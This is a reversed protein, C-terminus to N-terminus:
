RRSVTNAGSKRAIKIMENFAMQGARKADYDNAISQVNLNMSLNEINIGTEDGNNYISHGTSNNISDQLESILNSLTVKSGLIENRLFETQKANLISEPKKKTGDVWAPGTFDVLGGEAYKQLYSKYMWGGQKPAYAWKGSTKTVYVTTGKRLTKVKKASTSAKKRVNLNTTTRYRTGTNAPAPTAAATTSTDTTGEQTTTQKNKRAEEVFPNLYDEVAKEAQNEDSTKAYTENFIEQSRTLREETLLGDYKSNETLSKKYSEWNNTKLESTVPNNEDDRYSTWQQVISVLKNLDEQIQAQSKSLYDPTNSQIFDVISEPTGNMIDTVEAWWLGNEKQYELAENMLEIQADLREIQNESAEKVADIQEQQKNFYENQQKSDIEKQLSRIQSASGGSRQLIALQRQLKTLEQDEQNNEYMKREKTLADTLGNLFKKNAKDTKDKEDKLEEIRKKEREEIAKLVEQEVALQNDIIKQLIENRKQEEELIKKETDQISDFLADNDKIINDVQNWFSEMQKTAADAGTIEKGKSDYKIYDGFGYAKLLAVQQDVTLVSKGKEDVQQLQALLALGSNVADLKVEYGQTQYKGKKNKQANGEDDRVYQTGKLVIQGEANFLNPNDETMKAIFKSLGDTYQMLGTNEDFTFIQGFPSANTEKVQKLYYDRQM